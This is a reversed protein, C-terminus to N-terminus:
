NIIDRPLGSSSIMANLMILGSGLQVRALTDCPLVEFASFDVQRELDGLAESFEKELRSIAKQVVPTQNSARLLRVFEYSNCIFPLRENMYTTFRESETMLGDYSPNFLIDKTKYPSLPLGENLMEKVCIGNEVVLYFPSSTDLDKKVKEWEEIIVTALYKNDADIRLKLQRLKESTQKHSVESPHKVFPLESLFTTAGPKIEALYDWSSAGWPLLKEPNPSVKELFDYFKKTIFPERIGKSFHRCWEGLFARAQLPVQQQELLQYLKEYYQKDMERTLCYYAGCAHTNHLSFYFDPRVKAILDRLIQTEKVPRDFALNKYHIPFTTEVQHQLLQRHFHKMYNQFTFPQQSWGENLMAGQPDICPVINWEVDARQLQPHQQALLTLLSFVTLGGIPENPHPFAVILAKVAGSGYRVHYIPIGNESTGLVNIDFRPNGRLSDVLRHLKEVSCFTEFHPMARLVDQVDIQLASTV